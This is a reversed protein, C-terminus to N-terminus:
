AWCSAGEGVCVSVKKFFHFTVPTFDELAPAPPLSSWYPVGGAGRTSIDGMPRKLSPTSSMGEGECVSVSM